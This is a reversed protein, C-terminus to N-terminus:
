PRAAPRDHGALGRAPKSRVEPDLHLEGAREQAGVVEAMFPALRKGSPADLVAWVMGLAGSGGPRLGQAASSGEPASGSGHFRRLAKRAHDRNWGILACFEDLIQGKGTKSAGRYRRLAQRTVAKREALTLGGRRREKGEPPWGGSPPVPMGIQSLSAM